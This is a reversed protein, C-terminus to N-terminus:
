APGPLSQFPVNRCEVDSRAESIGFTHTVSETPQCFDLRSRWKGRCTNQAGTRGRMDTDCLDVIKHNRFDVDWVPHYTAQYKAVSDFVITFISMDSVARCLELVAHLIGGTPRGAFLGLDDNAVTRGRDRGEATVGIVDDILRVDLNLKEPPV